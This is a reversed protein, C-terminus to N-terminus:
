VFSEKKSSLGFRLYFHININLIYIYEGDCHQEHLHYDSYKFFVHKSVLVEKVIRPVWTFDYIHINEFNRQCIMAFHRFMNLSSLYFTYLLKLFININKNTEIINLWTIFYMLSIVTQLLTYIFICICTKIVKIIVFM